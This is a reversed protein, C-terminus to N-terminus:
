DQFISRFTEINKNQERFFPAVPKVHQIIVGQFSVLHYKAIFISFM